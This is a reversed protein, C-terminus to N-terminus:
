INFHREETLLQQLISDEFRSLKIKMFNLKKIKKFYKRLPPGPGRPGEGLDAVAGLGGPNVGIFALIYRYLNYLNYM